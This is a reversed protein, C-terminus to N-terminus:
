KDAHTQSPLMCMVSHPNEGEVMRTEPILSRRGPKAALERVWQAKRGAWIKNGIPDSDFNLLLELNRHKKKKKM